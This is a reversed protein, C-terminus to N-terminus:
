VRVCILFNLKMDQLEKSVTFRMSVYLKRLCIKKVNASRFSFAGLPRRNVPFRASTQGLFLDTWPCFQFWILISNFENCSKRM